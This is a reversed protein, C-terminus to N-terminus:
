LPVNCWLLLASACSARFCLCLLCLLLPVPASASHRVLVHCDQLLSAHLPALPTPKSTTGEGGRTSIRRGQPLGARFGSGERAAPPPRGQGPFSSSLPAPGRAQDRNSGEGRRHAAGSPWKWLAARDSELHDMAGAVLGQLASLGAREGETHGRSAASVLGRPGLQGSKTEVKAHSSAASLASRRGALWTASVASSGSGLSALVFFFSFPAGRFHMRAVKLGKAVRGRRCGAAPRAGM